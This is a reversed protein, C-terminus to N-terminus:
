APYKGTIYDTLYRIQAKQDKSLQKVVDGISILGALRGEQLVPLHRIRKETMVAMCEEITDNPGVCVVEATMITRVETTKSTRGKLVIERLYDRETIIGRIEGGDVVLLSGANHDVMRKVADYVSAGSEITYVDHGKARILDAVRGM